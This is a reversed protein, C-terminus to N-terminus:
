PPPAITLAPIGYEPRVTAARRFEEFQMMASTARQERTVRASEICPTWYRDWEAAVAATGSDAALSRVSLLSLLEQTAAVDPEKELPQAAIDSYGLFNSVHVVYVRNALVEGEISACIGNADPVGVVLHVKGPALTAVSYSFPLVEGVLAKTDADVVLLARRPDSFDPFSVVLTAKDEAPEIARGPTALSSYRPEVTKAAELAGCGVLPLWLLAVALRAARPTM